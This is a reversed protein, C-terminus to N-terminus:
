LVTTAEVVTEFPHQNRAADAPQFGAICCVPLRRYLGHKTASVYRLNGVQQIASKWDALRRINSDVACQSAALRFFAQCM